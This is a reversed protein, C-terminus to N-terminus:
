LVIRFKIKGNCTVWIVPCWVVNRQAPWAADPWTLKRRAKLFSVLGTGLGHIFCSQRAEKPDREDHWVVQKTLRIIVPSLHPWPLDPWPPLSLLPFSTSSHTYATPLVSCYAHAFSLLQYRLWIWRLIRCAILITFVFVKYKLYVEVRYETSNTNNM